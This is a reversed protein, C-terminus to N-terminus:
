VLERRARELVERMGALQEDRGEPKRYGAILEDVKDQLRDLVGQEWEPGAYGSRDITAPLWTDDRFHELTHDQNMYNTGMGFGVAVITDLAITEPSVEIQKSYLQVGLGLDRELLVQVPSLTKGDELMGEGVGPSVGTFAALTMAKYAKEWAAFYGPVKASCYDAGGARVRVGTWKRMFEALALANRMGDFAFYTATGTAMDMSGGWMSGYLPARPNIARGCIWTAILEAASVAIFGASTIPTSVGAVPMQTFGAAAGERVRRLFKDAVDRDLRLPHAFCSAGWNFWDRIGLIEGMENLYDVQKVHWAFPKGPKHAYEALVMGAELPELMPPVERLLLCHGSAGGTLADGFKTLEILEARNGPRKEKTKHDYVFQAVQCGVGPLGVRPFSRPVDDPEDGMEAKLEAVFGATLSKPFKAVENDRDVTAGWEALAELMEANQCLVGVQELVDLAADALASLDKNNLLEFRPM